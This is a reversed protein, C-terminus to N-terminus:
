LVLLGLRELVLKAVGVEQQDVVDVEHGAFRRGLFLQEVGQDREDLVAAAHHHGGVARGGLQGLHLRAQARVQLRAQDAADLRRVPGQPQAYQLALQLGQGLLAPEERGGTRLDHLEQGVAEGVADTLQLARQVGQHGPHAGLDRAQGQVLGLVDKARVQGAGLALHRHIVDLLRHGLM